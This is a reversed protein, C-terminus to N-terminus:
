KTKIPVKNSITFNKDFIAIVIYKVVPEDKDWNKDSYNLINPNYIPIITDEILNNDYYRKIVYSIAGPVKNWSLKIEKKNESLKGTLVPRTYPLEGNYCIIVLSEGFLLLYNDVIHIDGVKKEIIVNDQRIIKYDTESVKTINYIKTNNIMAFEQGIILKNVYVNYSPDLNFSGNILNFSRTFTNYLKYFLQNCM